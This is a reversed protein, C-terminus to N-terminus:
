GLVEFAVLLHWSIWKRNQEVQTSAEVRKEAGKVIRSKRQNEENMESKCEEEESEQM